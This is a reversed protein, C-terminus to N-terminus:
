PSNQTHVQGSNLVPVLPPRVGSTTELDENVQEITYQASRGQQSDEVSAYLLSEGEQVKGRRTRRSSTHPAAHESQDADLATERQDVCKSGRLSCPLCVANGPPYVCRRKRKRGLFPDALVLM